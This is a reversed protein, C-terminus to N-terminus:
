SARRILSGPPALPLLQIAGPATRPPKRCLFEPLARVILGKTSDFSLTNTLSCEDCLWFFVSANSPMAGRISDPLDRCSVSPSRAEFRFLKGHGLRRFPVSCLPNACKGVM